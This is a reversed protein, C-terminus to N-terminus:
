SPIPSRCASPSTDTNPLVHPILSVFVYGLNLLSRTMSRLDKRTTARTTSSLFLIWPDPQLVTLGNVGYIYLDKGMGRTLTVDLPCVSSATLAVGTPRRHCRIVHPDTRVDRSWGFEAVGGQFWCGQSTPPSLTVCFTIFSPDLHRPDPPPAPSPRLELGVRLDRNSATSSACAGFDRRLEKIRTLHPPCRSNLSYDRVQSNVTKPNSNSAHEAWNTVRAAAHWSTNSCTFNCTVALVATLVSAPHHGPFGRLDPLFTKVKQSVCLTALEMPTTPRLHHTVRTVLLPPLTPRRACHVAPSVSFAPKTEEQGCHKPESPWPGITLALPRPASALVPGNAVSVPWM